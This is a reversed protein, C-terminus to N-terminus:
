FPPMPEATTRLVTVVFLSGETGAAIVGHFCLRVSDVADAYWYALFGTDPPVALPDAIDATPNVHVPTNQKVMGELYTGVLPVSVYSVAETLIQPIDVVVVASPNDSLVEVTGNTVPACHQTVWTQASVGRLSVVGPGPAFTVAVATAMPSDDFQCSTGSLTITASVVVTRTTGLQAAAVTGPALTSDVFGVAADGSIVDTIGNRFTVSSGVIAAIGAGAGGGIQTNVGDTELRVAATVSFGKVLANVAGIRQFNLSKAVGITGEAIFDGALHITGGAPCAAVASLVAAFPTEANGNQSSLPVTTDADAYIDNPAVVNNLDDTFIDGNVVSCGAALWRFYSQDDLRLVGGPASFTITTASTFSTDSLTVLAGSIEIALSGIRSDSATLSALAMAAASAQISNDLYLDGGGTIGTDTIAGLIDSDTLQLGSTAPLDVAGTVNVRTLQLGAGVDIAFSAIASRGAGVGMTEFQLSKGAPAVAGEAVYSEQDLYLTTADPAAAVAALVSAFPSEVNGNQNPVPVPTNKDVFMVTSLNVDQDADTVITGHVVAGGAALWRKYTGDYLYLTGPAGTFTYTPPPGFQVDSLVVSVGSVNVTPSLVASDNANLGAVALAGFGGVTSDVIRLLGGGTLGTDTIDGTVITGNVLTLGATAPLDINGAVAIKDLTLFKNAAINFAAFNPVLEGGASKISVDKSIALGGEGSYDEPVVYIVGSSPCAALAALMTSFPAQMSGKQLVVPVLTQKDLFVITSLPYDYLAVTAITGNTVTCGADIWEAWSEVDLWVVGPAGLFNVNIAAGFTCKSFRATASECTVSAFMNCNRAAFNFCAVPGPPPVFTNDLTVNGANGPAIGTVALLMPCDIFEATATLGVTIGAAPSQMNRITVVTVGSIAAGAFTAAAAAASESECAIAVDQAMVLVGESSFNEAACKVTGGPSVAAIGTGLTAYPSDYSGNQLAAPLTNTKDVIAIGSIGKFPADLVTVTGNVVGAGALLWSNYSAEDMVITGPAGIFTVVIAGFTCNIFRAAPAHCTVAVAINCDTALLTTCAIAGTVQTRELTVAGWGGAFGATSDLVCDYFSGTCPGALGVPGSVVNHMVFAGASVNAGAITPRAADSESQICASGAIALIGEASFDTPACAVTGGLGAAAIGAVISAYPTTESGNQDALPVSTGLDAVRIKTLPDVVATAPLPDAAITGDPQVTLVKGADGPAYGDASVVKWVPGSPGRTVDRIVSGM